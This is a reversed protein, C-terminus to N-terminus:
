FGKVIELPKKIYCSKKTILTVKVLEDELPQAEKILSMTIEVIPIILAWTKHNEFAKISTCVFEIEANQQKYSSRVNQDL